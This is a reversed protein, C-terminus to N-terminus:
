DCVAELRALLEAKLGDTALGRQELASQLESMKMARAAERTLGPTM